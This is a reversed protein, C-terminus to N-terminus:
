ESLKHKLSYEMRTELYRRVKDRLPKPVKKAM